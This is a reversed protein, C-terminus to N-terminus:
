IYPFLSFWRSCSYFFLYPLCCLRNKFNWYYGGILFCFLLVEPSRNLTSRRKLSVLLMSCPNLLWKPRLKVYKFNKSKQCLIFQGNVVYTNDYVAVSEKGYILM